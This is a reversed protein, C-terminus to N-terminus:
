PTVTFGVQRTVGLDSLSRGPTVKLVYRGPKLRRLLARDRLRLRYSSAASTPV